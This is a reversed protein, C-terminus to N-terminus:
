SQNRDTINRDTRQHLWGHIDVNISGHINGDYILMSTATRRRHQPVDMNGDISGNRYNINGHHDIYRQYTWTATLAATL